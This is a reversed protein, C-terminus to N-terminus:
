RHSKWIPDTRDYVFEITSQVKQEFPHDFAMSYVFASRIVTNYVKLNEVRQFDVYEIQTVPYTLNAWDQRTYVPLGEIQVIIGCATKEIGLLPFSLTQGNVDFKLM